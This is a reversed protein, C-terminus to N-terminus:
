FSYSFLKILTLTVHYKSNIKNKSNLKAELYLFLENDSEKIYTISDIFDVKQRIKRLIYAQLTKNYAFKNGIFILHLKM